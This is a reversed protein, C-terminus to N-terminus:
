KKRKRLKKSKKANEPLQKMVELFKPLSLQGSALQRVKYLFSNEYSRRMEPTIEHYPRRRSKTILWAKFGQTLDLVIDGKQPLEKSRVRKQFEGDKNYLLKFRVIEGDPGVVEEWKAIVQKPEVAAPTVSVAKKKPLKAARTTLPFNKEGNNCMRNRIKAVEACDATIDHPDDIDGCTAELLSDTDECSTARLAKYRAVLKSPIAEGRKQYRRIQRRANRLDAKRILNKADLIKKQVEPTLQKSSLCSVEKLFARARLVSNFHTMGVSSRGDIDTVTPNIGFPNKRRSLYSRWNAM